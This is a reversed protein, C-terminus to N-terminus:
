TSAPMWWPCTSRATSRTPPAPRGSSSCTTTRRPPPIRSSASACTTPASPRPKTTPTRSRRFRTCAVRRSPWKSHISSVPALRKRSPRTRTLSPATSPPSARRLSSRSATCRASATGLQTMFHFADPDKFASVLPGWYRGDPWITWIGWLRQDRMGQSEYTSFMIRGDRLPTPHLASGLTMPAIPTVNSGDADMVFLQLTPFTYDKTPTFGNRNSVFVIKGGALPAPGLNLIGYGLRNFQEPPDVPNAEDWHGAGTNPTFEQNTLRQIQRTQVHIRYIDSGAYPLNGRQNNLQGPQVNPFFAYYVWQGDFSVFPDTVAGDTTDVLIEETGNPHLLVLDSGPEVTGPHFVEPWSINTSDGMRPQRVYVVDYSAAPSQPSAAFAGSVSVLLSLAFICHRLRQGNM